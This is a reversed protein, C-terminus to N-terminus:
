IAPMRRSLCLALLVSFVDKLLYPLSVTIFSPWFTSGTIVAFVVIGLIHCIILGFLGSIFSLYFKGKQNFMACFVCLPFFGIIFGGGVGFLVSIGGMMGSFVPIGVIGLLVYVLVSLVARKIGLYYGCFAVAFTQLTIAVASPIPFYIQSCIALIAASFACICVDKLNKTKM